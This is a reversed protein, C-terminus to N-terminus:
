KLMQVLPMVYGRMEMRLECMYTAIHMTQVFMGIDKYLLMNM